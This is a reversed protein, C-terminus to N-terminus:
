YRTKYVIEKFSMSIKTGNEVNVVLKSKLQLECLDTVLQLGISDTKRINLDKPIGIGNDYVILEFLNSNKKYFCISIKHEATFPKFAHKIANSVLENIILGLPIATDINIFIKEIEIKLSLNSPNYSNYISNVLDNIYKKCEVKELYDSGYLKEHVLAMSTIRNKCDIFIQKHYNDKATDLQRNLLSSIIQMNNKVRHHIERLLREKENISIMQKKIQIDANEIREFANQLKVLQNQLKKNLFELENQQRYLKLFVQVKNRLMDPEVPKTIYDFGGIEFGQAVFEETKHVASIFIIPIDKTKKRTKIIRATEFGNLDPMLVDMLILSFSKKLLQKLAEEGSRVCIIELQDNMLISSLSYLNKDNDDVILITDKM